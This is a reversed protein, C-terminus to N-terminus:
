WTESASTRDTSRRAVGTIDRTYDSLLGNPLVNRLAGQWM